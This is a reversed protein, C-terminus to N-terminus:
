CRRAAARPACASRWLRRRVQQRISPSPPCRHRPCCRSSSRSDADGRHRLGSRPRKAAIQWRCSMRSSAGMRWAVRHRLQAAGTLALDSRLGRCRAFAVSGPRGRRACHSISSASARAPRRRPGTRRARTNVESPSFHTVELDRSGERLGLQGLAYRGMRYGAVARPGAGRHISRVAALAPRRRGCAASRVGRGGDGALARLRLSSPHFALLRRRM